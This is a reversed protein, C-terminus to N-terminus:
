SQRLAQAPPAKIQQSVPLLTALLVLLIICVPIGLLSWIFSQASIVMAGKLLGSIWLSALLGVILGVMLQVLAQSILLGVVQKDPAGLARRTAIEQSRLTISNASMAYIGSAALFLAVLGGVLFVQNLSEMLLLPQKILSQYSQIQHVTADADLDIMIQQLAAIAESEDGSYHIVINMWWSRLDMLGYGTYATSTANLTPGHISDSVVGVITRWETHWGEGDLTRIRQGVASGQPFLERAMAVNIIVPSGSNRLERSDIALDALNFDRGELLQMGVTRWADRSVVEFNWMPNDSFVEAAQGQIEFHSTGGGTGPLSSFYAVSHVNPRQELKDKLGYYFDNRKKRAQPEGGNWRYSGWALRVSATLRQETQVGYDAQQAALSSGLLMAAVVLVVCSLAIETIVLVQNVRGARKSVAGRTGDRLIGNMDGQLARWAPILGTILIMMLVAGLLMWVSDQTLSITWWFPRAGNLAFIEDLAQNTLTMGWQALGLALIGGFCCILTSEWLMQMILRRQPVGLAVRIAVDRIQENVRALLLNGVNICTLLLILLVVLMMAVLVSYHQYLVDVSLKFPVAQLYGGAVDSRWAFEQPLAQIQRRLLTALEHQFQALSVDPKLRAIARLGGRNSPSAPVLRTQTMIQWVQAQTPFAFGPPMVGIVQVPIAEVQVMQGIIDENGDFVRQWIDHSLVVASQTENQQDSPGFSRGLLPQVGAVEFIDWQVYTLHVKQSMAENGLRGVTRVASQYLSMSQLLTSHAQIRNLHYPDVRQRVGHAAKFEGAIAILQTDQGLTLPKFVLQQMLAFTYLTLALGVTVIATTTLTFLPKKLLLRVAYRIDIWVPM